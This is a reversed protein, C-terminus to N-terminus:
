FRRTEQTTDGLIEGVRVHGSELGSFYVRPSPGINPGGESPEPESVDLNKKGIKRFIVIKQNTEVYFITKQITKVKGSYIKDFSRLFDHFFTFFQNQFNPIVPIRIGEGRPPLPDSYQARGQPPGINPGGGQPPRNSNM